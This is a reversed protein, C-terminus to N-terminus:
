ALPPGSTIVPLQDLLLQAYLPGIEQSARQVVEPASMFVGYARLVLYTLLDDYQVPWQPRDTDASLSIPNLYLEGDVRWGTADPTIGFWLNKLPDISFAVPRSTINRQNSYQYVNRFQDWPMFTSLQEDGYSSGTSYLRFSDRKWDKFQQATFTSTALAGVQAPTYSAVGATLPGFDFTQRLFQWDRHKACMKRYEMQAWRMFRQDELSLGSQLTTLDGSALGAEMRADNVISLLTGM